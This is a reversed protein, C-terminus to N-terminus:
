GGVYREKMRCPMRNNFVCKVFLKKNTNVSPILAVVFSREFQDKLNKKNKVNMNENTKYKVQGLNSGFSDECVLINILSSFTHYSVNSLFPFLFPYNAM